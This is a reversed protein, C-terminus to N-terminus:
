SKLYPEPCNGGGWTKNSEIVYAGSTDKLVRLNEKNGLVKVRASAPRSWSVRTSASNRVSERISAFHKEVGGKRIEVNYFLPIIWGESAWDKFDCGDVEGVGCFYAPLPAVARWDLQLQVVKLTKAGRASEDKKFRYDQIGM